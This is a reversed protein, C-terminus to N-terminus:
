AFWEKAREQAKLTHDEIDDAEWAFVCWKDGVTRGAMYRSMLDPPLQERKEKDKNVLVFISFETKEHAKGIKKSYEAIDKQLERVAYHLTTRTDDIEDVILIRKGVLSSAQPTTFDLWQTRVVETGPAEEPGSTGLDEYLSLGIAQIPINKGDGQSGKLFTRLIRAPIFGGGGIALICDPRAKKRKIEEGAGKCIEHVQNYSVYIKNDM